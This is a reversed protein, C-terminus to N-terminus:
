QTGASAAFGGQERTYDADSFQVSSVNPHEAFFWPFLARSNWSRANTVHRLIDRQDGFKGYHASKIEEALDIAQIFMRDTPRRILYGELFIDEM